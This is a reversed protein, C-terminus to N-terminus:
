PRPPSCGPTAGAEPHSWLWQVDGRTAAGTQPADRGLRARIIGAAAGDERVTCVTILVPCETSRLM